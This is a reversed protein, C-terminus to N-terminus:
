NQVSKTDIAIGPSMTTSLTINKMYTGKSTQPKARVIVNLLSTFNEQLKAKIIYENDKSEEKLEAVQKQLVVKDTNITLSDVAKLYDEMKERKLQEKKHKGTHYFLNYSSKIKYQPLTLFIEPIACNRNNLKEHHPDIYWLLNALAKIFGSGISEYCAGPWGLSEVELLKILDNYLLDQRTVFNREKPLKCTRSAEM